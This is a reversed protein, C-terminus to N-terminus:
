TVYIEITSEMIIIMRLNGDKSKRRETQRASVGPGYKRGPGYTSYAIASCGYPFFNVKLCLQQLETASYKNITQTKASDVVRSHATAPQVASRRESPKILM